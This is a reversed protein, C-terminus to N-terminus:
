IEILKLIPLKLQLFHDGTHSLPNIGFLIGLVEINGKLCHRVLPSYTAHHIHFSERQGNRAIRYREEQDNGVDEIPSREARIMGLITLRSDM